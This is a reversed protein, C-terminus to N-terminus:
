SNNYRPQRKRHDPASPQWCCQHRGRHGWDPSRQPPGQSWPAWDQLQLPLLLNTHPQPQRPLCVCMWESIPLLCPASSFAAGQSWVARLFGSVHHHLCWTVRSCLYRLCLLSLGQVVHHRCWYTDIVKSDCLPVFVPPLCGDRLLNDGM